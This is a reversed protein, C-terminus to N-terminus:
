PRSGYVRQARQYHFDATASAPWSGQREALLRWQRQEEDTMLDKLAAQRTQEAKIAQRAAKEPSPPMSVWLVALLVGGAAVVHRTELGLRM